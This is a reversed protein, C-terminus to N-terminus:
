YSRRNKIHFAFFMIRKELKTFSTHFPNLRSPTLMELLLSFKEKFSVKYFQMEKQPSPYLKSNSTILNAKNENGRVFNHLYFMQLSHAKKLCHFM